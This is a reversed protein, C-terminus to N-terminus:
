GGAAPPFLSIEDDQKLKTKLGDLHLINKGNVLFIVGNKMNGAEDFMFEKFEKGYKESLIELLERANSAKIEERKKKTIDRLNAFYKVLM